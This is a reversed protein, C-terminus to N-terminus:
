FATPAAHEWPEVLGTHLEFREAVTHELPVFDYAVLNLVETTDSEIPAAEIPTHLAQEIRRELRRRAELEPSGTDMEDHRAAMRSPTLISLFHRNRYEKM